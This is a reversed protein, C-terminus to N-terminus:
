MLYCGRDEGRCGLAPNVWGRNRDPIEPTPTKLHLSAIDFKNVLQQKDTAKGVEPRVDSLFPESGHSCTKWIGGDPNGAELDLSITERHYVERLVPSTEILAHKNHDKGLRKPEKVQKKFSSTPFPLFAKFMM